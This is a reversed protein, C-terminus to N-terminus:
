SRLTLTILSKRLYASNTQPFVTKIKPDLLFSPSLFFALSSRCLFNSELATGEAPLYNTTILKYVM